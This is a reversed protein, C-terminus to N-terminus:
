GKYCIVSNNEDFVHQRGTGGFWQYPEDQETKHDLIEQVGKRLKRMLSIDDFDRAHGHLIYDANEQLYMLRDLNQAFIELPLSEELQMWLHHNISDGTFLIRDEKLLLLIGGPTHGPLEIVDLHLNGLDITDGGHIPRFEPMHLNHKECESQFEEFQIHEEAVPLDAPNLYAEEFYINGYIHDCHGHTNVVMVPLETLSRVVASVDEWGIMTDIVLAKRSGIVLYGTAQGADDMLYVHENMQKLQIREFM